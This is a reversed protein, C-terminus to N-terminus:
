ANMRKSDRLFGVLCLVPHQNQQRDRGTDESASSHKKNPPLEGSASAQGSYKAIGPQGSSM